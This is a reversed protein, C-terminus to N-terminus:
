RSAMPVYVPPATDPACLTLVAPTASTFVVRGAVEDPLILPVARSIPLVHRGYTATGPASAYVRWGPLPAQFTIAHGLGLPAAEACSAAGQTRAPVAALAAMVALGVILTKM